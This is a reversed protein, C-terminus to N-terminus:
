FNSKLVVVTAFPIQTARPELIAADVPCKRLGIDHSAFPRIVPPMPRNTFFTGISPTYGELSEILAGLVCWPYKAWVTAASLACGHGFYIHVASHWGHQLGASVLSIRCNQKSSISSPTNHSPDTRTSHRPMAHWLMARQLCTKPWLHRFM